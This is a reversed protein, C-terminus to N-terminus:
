HFGEEEQLGDEGANMDSRDGEEGEQNRERLATIIPRCQFTSIILINKITYLFFM